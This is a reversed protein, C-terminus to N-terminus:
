PLRMTQRKCQLPLIFLKHHYRFHSLYPPTVDEKKLTVLHEVIHMVDFPERVARFVLTDFLDFSIYEYKDIELYDM